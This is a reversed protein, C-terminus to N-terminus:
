INGTPFMAQMKRAIVLNGKVSMKRTMVARLGNMDGNCIKTYNEDSSIITASPKEHAGSNIQLTGDKVIM